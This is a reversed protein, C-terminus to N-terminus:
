QSLRLAKVARSEPFGMETLQRLAIEDVRDDEDEDLMAALYVHPTVHGRACVVWDCPTPTSPALRTKGGLREQLKAGSPGLASLHPGLMSPAVLRQAALVRSPWPAM